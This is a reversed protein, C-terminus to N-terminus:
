KQTLIVKVTLKMGLLITLASIILEIHFFIQKKGANMETEVVSTAFLSTDTEALTANLRTELDLLRNLQKYRKQAKMEFVEEDRHRGSSEILFSERWQGDNRGTLVPLLSRGDMQPPATVGGIDLFTPALDVNLTIENFSKNKQIGPGRVIFPIKVDFEFNMSKGKVLGFQGLHYGHDSTFFLYTNDLEGIRQLETVIRQISEDVSQLTQLRKTMLLNTFKMHLPSMRSTYQLIWQKDPNPAYDYAVTHHDTANMFLNSHEPASDEPGHPAPYSLVMLFPSSSSSSNTLHRRMFRIGERTIVHPFYDRPYSDGFKIKEGNKYVTYNYYRSNMRLGM